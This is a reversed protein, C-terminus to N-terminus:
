LDQITEPLKGLPEYAIKFINKAIFQKPRSDPLPSLIGFKVLSEADRQATQYVVGFRNVLETITILPREFLSEVLRALRASGKSGLKALYADMLKRLLACRKISERAQERTGVLCFEIWDQWAGKASINFLKDVYEQKYREFFASMYLWPRALRLCDGTMLALLLRGVRGNGDNFPHIAEFQYHVLYCDVLPHFVKMESNIYSELVDFATDVHEPPPPVFRRNSGIQVPLKRFKGPTTEEGRVGDLLIRHLGCVLWRSFGVKAVMTAGERLATSYNYVERWALVEDHPSKPEPRELEFLLLQQATAHTGEIASSTIAERQQLPTLLLNPNPLTQGIGDLRTTEGYAETLLSQVPGSLALKPPLPDPVFAWDPDPLNVRVLQGTKPETFPNLDM